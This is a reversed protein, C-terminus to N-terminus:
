KTQDGTSEVYRRAAERILGAWEGDLTIDDWTFDGERLTNRVQLGLGFHHDL